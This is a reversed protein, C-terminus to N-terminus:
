EQEAKQRRAKPPEPQAEAAKPPEPPKLVAGSVIRTTSRAPETKSGPQKYYVTTGPPFDFKQAIPELPDIDDQDGPYYHRNRKSDWCEKICRVKM